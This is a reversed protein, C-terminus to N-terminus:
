AWVSDDNEPPPGDFDSDIETQMKKFPQKFKGKIAELFTIVVLDGNKVGAHALDDAVMQSVTLVKEGRETDFTVDLGYKGPSSDRYIGRFVNGPEAFVTGRALFRSNAPKPRKITQLAM